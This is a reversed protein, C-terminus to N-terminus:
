DLPELDLKSADLIFGEESGVVIEWAAPREREIVRKAFEFNVSGPPYAVTVRLRQRNEEPPEEEEVYSWAPGLLATIREEWTTGSPDPPAALLAALLRTRRQEVTQGEPEVPLKLMTEWIPLTLANATVPILGDRVERIKGVLRESEGAVAMCIAQHEPANQAWGPYRRLLGM